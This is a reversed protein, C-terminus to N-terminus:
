YTKTMASPTLIMFDAKNEAPPRKMNDTEEGSITLINLHINASSLKSYHNLYWLIGEGNDSHYAGNFHIFVHDAMFNSFIFWGMAADKLAQAKAINDSAGPKGGGGMMERMAAYGPLDPDYPIPLPPLYKMAEAEFHDLAEFGGHNVASAYRRPVNTAIFQLKHERAFEVLPRYDTKYNNWLRAEDTFNRERILGNLYENLILQNDSEFMEAGLIIKGEKQQHLEQTLELQLWHHIPNNHFEGFFVVDAAAAAKVLEAWSQQKGDQYILYAPKESNQGFTHNFLILFIIALKKM